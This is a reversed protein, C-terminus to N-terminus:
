TKKSSECLCTRRYQEIGMKDLSTPLDQRRPRPRAWSRRAYGLLSASGLSRTPFFAPLQTSGARAYDNHRHAYTKEGIQVSASSAARSSAQTSAASSLASACSVSALGLRDALTEEWQKYRCSAFKRCDCTCALASVHLAASLGGVCSTEVCAFARHSAQGHLVASM